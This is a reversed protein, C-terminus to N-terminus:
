RFRKKGGGRKATEREFLALTDAFKKTNRAMDRVSEFSENESASASKVAVDYLKLEREYDRFLEETQALLFRMIKEPFDGPDISSYVGYLYDWNVQLFRGDYNKKRSEYDWRWLKMKMGLHKYFNVSPSVVLECLDEHPLKVCPMILYADLKRLFRSFNNVSQGTRLYTGGEDVIYVAKEGPAINGNDNWICSMNTMLKYGQKLLPEAIDLAVLTKGAGKKGEIAVTRTDFLESYFGDDWIIM